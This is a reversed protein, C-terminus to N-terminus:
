STRADSDMPLSGTADIGLRKAQATIGPLADRAIVFVGSSKHPQIGLRSRVIHGIYKTAYHVQGARTNTRKALDGVSITSVRGDSFTELLTKVVAELARDDRGTPLRDAQRLLLDHV